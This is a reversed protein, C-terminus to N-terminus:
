TSKLMKWNISNGSYCLIAGLDIKILSCISQSRTIECFLQNIQTSRLSILIIKDFIWKKLLLGCCLRCYKKFTCM